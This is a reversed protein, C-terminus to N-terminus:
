DLMPHESDVNFESHRIVETPEADPENDVLDSGATDNCDKAFEGQELIEKTGHELDVRYTYSESFWGEAVVTTPRKTSNRSVDQNHFSCRWSFHAEMDGPKHDQLKRNIKHAQALQMSESEHPVFSCAIIDFLIYLTIRIESWPLNEGDFVEIADDDFWERWDGNVDLNAYRQFNFDPEICVPILRAGARSAHTM